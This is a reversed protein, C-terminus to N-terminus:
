QLIHIKRFVRWPLLGYGWVLRYKELHSQYTLKRSSVKQSTTHVIFIISRGMSNFGEFCSRQLVNLYILLDSPHKRLRKRYFGMSRKTPAIEIKVVPSREFLSGVFFCGPPVVFLAMWGKRFIEVAFAM